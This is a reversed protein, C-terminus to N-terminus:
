FLLLLSLQHTDGLTRQNFGYAYDFQYFEYKWTAGATFDRRNMGARAALGEILWLEAGLHPTMQADSGLPVDLDAAISFRANIYKDALGVKLNSAVADQRGTDWSLAAVPNQLNLGVMFDSALSPQYLIGLDEGYGYAKNDALSHYLGRLTMGYRFQYSVLNAYSLSFAMEQDNFTGLQNGVSDTREIGDVAYNTIGLAFDGYDQSHQAAALFNLTREYSLFSYMSGLQTAHVGMRTLGAPNWYAATVDDVLAAGAGGMGLHRAGVGAGLYSAAGANADLAQTPGALILMVAAFLTKM